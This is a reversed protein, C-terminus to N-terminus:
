ETGYGFGRIIRRAEASHLFRLFEAAVGKDAGRALLAADQRIPPHMDAPVDWRSGAAGSPLGLVQSVAVFGLEANGTAVMAYAQGVNEGMVLKGRLAASLGLTELTQVAASGYPALRPNAIALLRFTGEGLTAAGDTAVRNPDPSWLALRGLAYTFRSGAVARGAEELLLPRESDAALFADFPAGNVIQAYLKGTSGIVLTLTDGSDAEFREELAAAPESFNAAVAVLTERASVPASSLVALLGVCAPTIWRRRNPVASM